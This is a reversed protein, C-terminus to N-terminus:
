RRAEEARQKSLAYRKALKEKGLARVEEFPSKSGDFEPERDTPESGNGPALPNEPRKGAM